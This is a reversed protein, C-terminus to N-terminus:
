PSYFIIGKLDPNKIILRNLPLSIKGKDFYINFPDGTKLLRSVPSLLITKRCCSRFIRMDNLIDSVDVDDTEVNMSGFGNRELLRAEIDPQYRGVYEGCSCVPDINRIFELSSM